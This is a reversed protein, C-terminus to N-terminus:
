YFSVNAGHRAILAGGADHAYNLTAIRIGTSGDPTATGSDPGAANGGKVFFGDVRVNTAGNATLVHWANDSKNSSFNGPIDDGNLDGSLITPNKQPNRKSLSNEGGAFGGYIAVNSPLYFTVLNPETGNYGGGYPISPKYTGQAVWIDNSGGATGAANLAADMNNFATSWSSGNGGSAANQNVYFTAANAAHLLGVSALMLAIKMFRSKSMFDEESFHLLTPQGVTPCSLEGM